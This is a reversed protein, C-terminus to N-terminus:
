GILWKAAANATDKGDYFRILKAADAASYVVSAFPFGEPREGTIWLPTPAALSLLGPVDGYKVAGPLLLPDRIETISAFRFGNTDVALKKIASGAQVAAAAAYLGAGGFGALHIAMPQTEHDRVFAIMTLVDHVRQSFLPHNYGLTYSLSERPNNVRRTEALTEGPKLFEGQYLLDLGAVALGGNWLSQVAATLKGGENFLGAKGRDTLWVAVQKNWNGPVLIVAPVAEGQYKLVIRYEKGGGRDAEGHVDHSVANKEPLRRGILIDWGGGVVKRYEALSASDKPTLAQIQKEADAVFARVVKLEADDDSKPMPHEADWVSIEDKTLPTFDREVIEEAGLHLHKNMFGYMTMRSPHNYNHEYPFYKGEVNDPVGMRAFHEKLQPLGNEEIKVTWDDAGTMGVARPAALAAFEINGTNVRLLSANECTCGGQMGTSVMVAPFFAKPRPDVCALIFTQTGGGSAGTVGLRQPDVDPLSSLFDVARISNWTQLGMANILRLEAQASFLGWRDPSSMEPRQKAFGHTLSSPLINNDAYGLMDYLLAVCGMRALQVCRAQLPHRGGIESHEAKGAVELKVKEAGHDHYRGNAWHGHPCLIGPRKGGDGKPRYLSGTLYLGPFTEVIVKEVTYDDRDVKGHVIPKLPTKEPMPWLGLAVLIQRRVYEARQQWEEYTELPQWTFDGNLDKLEGLRRDEPLTGAPLVRPVDAQASRYNTFGGAVALTGAALKLATRREIPQNWM